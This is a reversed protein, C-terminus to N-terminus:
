SSHRLKRRLVTGLGVVGSSFLVMGGPEPTSGSGSNGILNFSESPITGEFNEKGTSPGNNEDWYVPNNSAVTANQLTLWYTTGSDVPVNLGSISILNIDYGYQNTSMFTQTLNTGSVTGSAINNSFQVTGVAWDLSTVTDGPSMWFAFNAGTITSSGGVTFSDSISFGNNIAWADVTCNQIDCIGNIPGNQYLVGAHSETALALCFALLLLSALRIKM